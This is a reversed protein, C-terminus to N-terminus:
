IKNVFYFINIYFLIFINKLIQCICIGVFTAPIWGNKGSEPSSQRFGACFPQIGALQGSVPRGPWNGALVTPDPWIGLTRVNQGFGDLIGALHGTIRGRRGTDRGSPRIWAPIRRSLRLDPRKPWIGALRAPIRCSIGPIRHCRDSTGPNQSLKDFEPVL